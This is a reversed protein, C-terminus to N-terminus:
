PLAAGNYSDYVGAGNLLDIAELIDAPANMASRDIDASWTPLPDGLGDLSSVLAWVDSENSIRDANVDAPLSAFRIGVGTADHRIVTWARPTIVRNLDLAAVNDPGADVEIVFPPASLDGEQVVAMDLPTLCSPTPDFTIRARNWGVPVGTNPEIPKRADIADNPPDSQVVALAVDPVIKFVEGGFLDCIYMEGAADLGFSSIDRITLTGGPALDATRDTFDTVSNIADYRLSWIEASCYDAFFYTGALDPIACGRYVEGGTISCRSPSASHRYEHIPLTLTPDNCTCGTLSTCSNGEMCRWGYNRGGSDGAPQFNLEEWTQEGVDAIFLDDTARDFACRWPNRLGYAWIEDDGEVGVFPNDPPIAYNRLADAPFDDGDVDIRLIKGLLKSTVDQGNGGVAHGDDESDFHGGGDGTAIYLYGDPGFAIWGGNHNEQPQAFTLIITGTSDAVDPNAAHVSYRAIVTSGPNSSTTYNIYFFGNKAYDPHFALGLLGREFCCGSIPDVNLFEPVLIQGNKRIKIRGSQEVIFIRQLDGPPHTVFLPRTVGAVVRHARLPTQAPASGALCGLALVAVLNVNTHRSVKEGGDVM